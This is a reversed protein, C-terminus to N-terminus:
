VLGKEVAWVAAQARSDLGLKNLINAVHNEVTRESLFLAEAIERNSKGRSLYRMVERERATLGGYKEAESQRKTLVKEKPLFDLARSLFQERVIEDQINAELSQLVRRASEFEMESAPNDKQGRHLRGLLAHIQWQLPLAERQIAGQKAEELTQIAKKEQKLATQAQGKLKLLYPIPQTEPHQSRLSALEEVIKLADKPKEEALLLNGKAWLMRQKALTYDGKENELGADLLARTRSLDNNLLYAGALNASIGGVWWASGLKKAFALALEFWQIANNSQLMMLHVYGLANQAGIIWQRHGIETAIRLSESAHSIAEDFLGRGGLNLAITWEVFAEGATWGTQRSLELAEISTRYNELPTKEPMYNTENWSFTNCSGTLASVLGYKDDLSRLITIAQQYEGFSALLDGHHMVAMGMLDFSEAMGKDDQNQKYLELAKRHLELGQGTQGINVHWNGLRNLSLAQLRVDDLTQSVSEALRFYEGTRQYDRGAWLQGLNLLTQWESMGDRSERAIKLAQEFDDLASKFDGMTEYARGRLLLLEPEIEKGLQRAAVFVRSYFVIAERPAYFDCAQDGAKLSYDFAKQWEEATFFHYSLDAFHSPLTGVFMREMSEGALRHLGQRERLMMTSYAAERTLAHRFAFVDASEEVILQVKVLQKLNDLLALEDVQLIGQLLHFNFRRGLVSAMTLARLAHDDLKQTRRQVADQITRPIRLQSIEKRGWAGNSFFVDGEAMLSKLIEEIFFPNGETLPFVADLFEQSIPTDLELIARLMVDVDSPTLRTLAFDTGLRSRDLEALFHTLEPNTEDSRYTLILFVPLPVIRRALLLLFELSTSDSWHLDEIIVVLPKSRALDMFIQTLSQFIRQKEIKPDPTPVPVIDPIYSELEPMLRILPVAHPGMVKKIEDRSRTALYYRLLDLLPAYPQASETQFCNGQLVLGNQASWNEAEKAFRSKGIGAEGSILAIQGNGESAHTFLGRLRQLDDDRGVTVPCIVSKDLFMDVM